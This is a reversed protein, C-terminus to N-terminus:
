IHRNLAEGIQRNCRGLEEQLHEKEIMCLRLAGSLQNSERKYQDLEEQKEKFRQKVENEIAMNKKKIEERTTVILKLKVISVNELTMQSSPINLRPVKRQESLLYRKYGIAIKTTKPDAGQNILHLAHNLSHCEIQKKEGRKIYYTTYECTSSM